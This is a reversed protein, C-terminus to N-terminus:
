WDLQRAALDKMIESAGGGIAIVKTERYIRECKAGRIYGAGGLIQVAEKACFEMTEVAFNKLMCIEAIPSDGQTLRYAVSELFSKTAEIRMAMDVLKHRIVQRHILPRGFTVREKAWGIAEDLCVKAFAYANAALAFRENNFNLMLGLFGQNEEGIINSVPVRCDDFYVTATDSAWWGMKKLPTTSLGPTGKEVLLLSIGGMGEGGTRVVVTYFDARIGSTIFTKTGRVIYHDGERRATTQINAVDSGGSPETVALAAITEGRLTPPVVKAKLEDSGIRAIPPIAIGHSMLGASVGGSGARALEECVVITHFPDAPTGGLEEPFGLGLLGIEGAKQYLERPFSEAEEWRDVNPTIEKEVFRRLVDRFARHDDTYFPSPANV